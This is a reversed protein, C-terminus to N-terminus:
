GLLREYDIRDIDKWGFDEITMEGSKFKERYGEEFEVVFSNDSSSGDYFCYKEINFWYAEVWAVTAIVGIMIISGVTILVKIWLSKKNMEKM